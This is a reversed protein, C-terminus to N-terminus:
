ETDCGPELARLEDNIADIQREADDYRKLWDFVLHRYASPVPQGNDRCWNVYRLNNIQDQYKQRRDLLAQKKKRIRLAKSPAREVGACLHFDRYITQIAQFNTQLGRLVRVYDVAKGHAGCYVCAFSSDTFYCGLSSGCAPCSTRHYSKDMHPAYQELIDDMGITDNVAETLDRWFTTNSYNTM